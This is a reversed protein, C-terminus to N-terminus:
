FSSALLRESTGTGGAAMGDDLIAGMTSLEGGDSMDESADESADENPVGRCLAETFDTSSLVMVKRRVSGVSSGSVRM